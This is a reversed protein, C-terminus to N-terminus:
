KSQILAAARLARIVRIKDGVSLRYGDIRVEADEMLDALRGEVTSPEVDPEHYNAPIASPM